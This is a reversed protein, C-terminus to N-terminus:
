PTSSQGCWGNTSYLKSYLQTLVLIGAYREGRQLGPRFEKNETSKDADSPNVAKNHIKDLPQEKESPKCIIM